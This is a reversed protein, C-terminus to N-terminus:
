INIVDAVSSLAVGIISPTFIEIYQEIENISPDECSITSIISESKIYYIQFSGSGESDLTIGGSGTIYEFSSAVNTSFTVQDDITGTVTITVPTYVSPDSPSYSAVCDAQVLQGISVLLLFILPGMNIIIWPYLMSFNGYNNFPM